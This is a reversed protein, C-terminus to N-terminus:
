LEKDLCYVLFKEYATLKNYLISLRKFALMDILRSLMKTGLENIENEVNDDVVENGSGVTSPAVVKLMTSPVYFSDTMVSVVCNM